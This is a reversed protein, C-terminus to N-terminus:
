STSGQDPLSADTPNFGLKRAKKASGLIGSSPESWDPCKATPVFKACSKLYILKNMTKAVSSVESESLLHVNQLFLTKDSAIGTIIALAALRKQGSRPPDLLVEKLTEESCMGVVTFWQDPSSQSATSFLKVGDVVGPTTLRRAGPGIIEQQSKQTSVLLVLAKACPRM